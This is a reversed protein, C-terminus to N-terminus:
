KLMMVPGEPHAPVVTQMAPHVVLDLEEMPIAGLLPEADGPLVLANTICLRGQFHVEVPGVVELEIRTGDAMRSIRKGEIADLGLYDRIDENIVLMIAGTDVMMTVRMSRVEEEGIIHRKQLIKDGANVLEIETYVLGMKDTKHKFVTTQNNKSV